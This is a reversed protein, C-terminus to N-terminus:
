ELLGKNKLIEIYGEEDLPCNILDFFDSKSIQCQKHMKSILWDNIEQDNHSIKTKAVVKGNYYYLYFHHDGDSLRFGKKLLSQRAKKSDIIAM